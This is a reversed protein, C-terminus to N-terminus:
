EALAAEVDAFIQFYKDLRSIEFVSRVRDQMGALALRGKYGTVTRYTHVLTGVASSDMYVVEALNLVLVKPKSKCVEVLREHLQPSQHLDIEGQLDVVVGGAEERISTIPSTESSM